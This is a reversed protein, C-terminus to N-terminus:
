RPNAADFTGSNHVAKVLIRRPKQDDGLVIRCMLAQGLLELGVATVTAQLPSVEGEDPAHGLSRCACDRGADGSGCAIPLLHGDAGAIIGLFRDSMILHHFTKTVDCTQHAAVQFGPPGMLNAHLHRMDAMGQQPIM